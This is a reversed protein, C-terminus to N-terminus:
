GPRTRRRARASARRRLGPPTMEAAGVFARYLGGPVVRAHGEEAADLTSNVVQQPSLWLFRPVGAPPLEGSREHFETPTLGPLCATAVVGTGALEEYLSETYSLVFAKTAAYTAAGPSPAVAAVSGVNIITGEGRSVMPGVAAASLRMLAVVNLQIEQDERGVPLDTVRGFTGVGANNVLLDVPREPDTLRQEVWSRPVPATLDAALVETEVGHRSSLEAALARLRARDRAVLVLNTGEGALKRAFTEGLGASAGTVLATGWRAM